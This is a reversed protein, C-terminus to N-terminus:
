CNGTQGHAIQSFIEGPALSACRTLAAFLRLAEVGGQDVIGGNEIEGALMEARSAVIGVARDLASRALALQSREDLSKWVDGMIGASEKNGM